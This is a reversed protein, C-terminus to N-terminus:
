SPPGRPTPRVVNEGRRLREGARSGAVLDQGGFDEGLRRTPVDTSAGSLKAAKLIM